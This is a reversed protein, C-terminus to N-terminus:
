QGDKFGEKVGDYLAVCPKVVKFAAKGLLKGTNKLTFADKHASYKEQVADIVVDKMTSFRSKKM